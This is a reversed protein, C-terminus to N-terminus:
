RGFLSRKGPWPGMVRRPGYVTEMAFVRPEIRPLVSMPRRGSRETEARDVVRM